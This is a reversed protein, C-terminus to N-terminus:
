VEHLQDVLVMIIDM